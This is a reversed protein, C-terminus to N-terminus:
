DLFPIKEQEAKIINDIAKQYYEPDLKQDDDDRTLEEPVFWGEDGWHPEHKPLGEGDDCIIAGKAQSLPEDVALSVAIAYDGDHSINVDAIQRESERVKSRRAYYLQGQSQEKPRTGSETVTAEKTMRQSRPGFGRIARLKAVREDMLITNCPPDILAVTKMKLAQKLPFLAPYFRPTIISIERM